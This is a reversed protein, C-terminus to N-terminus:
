DESCSKSTLSIGATLTQRKCALFSLSKGGTTLSARSQGLEQASGERSVKQLSTLFVPHPTESHPYPPGKLLHSESGALYRNQGQTESQHPRPCRPNCNYTKLFSITKM